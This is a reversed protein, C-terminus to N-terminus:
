FFTQFSDLLDVRMHILNMMIRCDKPSRFESYLEVAMHLTANSGVESPREEQSVAERLVRLWVLLHLRSLINQIKLERLIARFFCNPRAAHASDALGLLPKALRSWYVFFGEFGTPNLLGSNKKVDTFYGAKLDLREVSNTPCRDEGM